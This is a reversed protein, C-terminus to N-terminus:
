WRQLSGTAKKSMGKVGINWEAVLAAPEECPEGNENWGNQCLDRQLKMGGSRLFRLRWDAVPELTTLILFEKEERSIRM